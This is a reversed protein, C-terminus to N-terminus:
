ERVSACEFIMAGTTREGAHATPTVLHLMIARPIIAAAAAILACCGIAPRAAPGWAGTQGTLRGQRM